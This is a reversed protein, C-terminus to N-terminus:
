DGLAFGTMMFSVIDRQAWRVPKIIQMQTARGDADVQTVRTVETLPFRLITNGTEMFREGLLFLRERQDRQRQTSTQEEVKAFAEAAERKKTEISRDYAAARKVWQWKWSHRKLPRKNKAFKQAVRAISRGPGMTFYEWAYKYARAGEGPRRAWVTKRDAAIQPAACEYIDIEAVGSHIAIENRIAQGTLVVGTVVFSLADQLAVMPKIIQNQIKRGDADVTTVWIVETLPVKLMTEVAEILREVLL